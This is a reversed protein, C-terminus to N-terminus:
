EEAGEKLKDVLRNMFAILMEKYTPCLESDIQNIIKDIDRQREEEQWREYNDFCEIFEALVGVRFGEKLYLHFFIDFDNLKVGVEM